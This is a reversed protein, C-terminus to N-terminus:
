PQGHILAVSHILPGGLMVLGRYMLPRCRMEEKGNIEQMGKSQRKENTSRNLPKQTM